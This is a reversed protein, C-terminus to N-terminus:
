APQCGPCWFLNRGGFVKTEVRADCLLCGRGQRRYVYHAEENLAEGRKHPRHKTRTTVIRRDVMAQPMLTKADKWMAKLATESVESGPTFPSIGARFLIEARFINGLGSVISQDMLLLGIPTKRKAIRDIMRTPADGNLPDPGLRELLTQWTAESWVSCDTPGRLELWQQKDWIRLRLAGRPEPMPQQGEAFDGYLGMHVHLIRRERKIIGFDYGIHKGVALVGQLVQRDLLGADLFRGQPSDVSVRKGAFMSAHLEAWRHTENGEPM